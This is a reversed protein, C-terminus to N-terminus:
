PNLLFRLTKQGVCMSTLRVACGLLCIGNMFMETVRTGIIYCSVSVIVMGRM